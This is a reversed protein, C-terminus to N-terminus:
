TDFDKVIKTCKKQMDKPLRIKPDVWIDTAISLTDLNIMRTKDLIFVCILLQATTFAM